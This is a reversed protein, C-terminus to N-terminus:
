SLLIFFITIPISLTIIFLWMGFTWGKKGFTKRLTEIYDKDNGATVM